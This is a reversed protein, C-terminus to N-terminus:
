GDVLDWTLKPAQGTDKILKLAENFTENCTDDPNDSGCHPCIYGENVARGGVCRVLYGVEGLCALQDSIILSDEYSITIGDIEKETQNVLNNTSNEFRISDAKLEISRTVSNTNTVTPAVGTAIPAIGTTERASVCTVDPSFPPQDGIKEWLSGEKMQDLPIIFPLNVVNPPLNRTADPRDPKVSNILEKIANVFTYEIAWVGVGYALEHFNYRQQTVSVEGNQDKNEMHAYFVPSQSDILKGKLSGNIAKGKYNKVEEMKVHFPGVPGSIPTVTVFKSVPDTQDSM